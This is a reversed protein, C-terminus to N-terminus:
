LGEFFARKLREEDERMRAALEEVERLRDARRKAEAEEPTLPNTRAPLRRHLRNGEIAAYSLADVIDDHPANPFDALEEVAAEVWGKEKPFFVQRNEVRVQLMVSRSVKDGEPKVGRVPMGQARAETIILRQFAVDEVYIITPKYTEHIARITPIIKPGAMRERHIHVVYLSGDPHVDVVALVTYDGKTSIALDVTCIRYGGEPLDDYYRLNEPNFLLDEPPAPNQNYQAEFTRRGVTNKLFAVEAAPIREPCLLEGRQREDNWRTSVFKSKGAELPLILKTWNGEQDNKLIHGSVDEVHGRQMVLVRCGTKQDNLRTTWVSTFWRIVSDRSAKSEIEQLNHPDDAVIISGGEGTGGGGDISSILREGTRDNAFRTKTNQDSTLSFAHGYYSRYLDSEVVGRSRVSDRTALDKSYSTYVFRESPFSAWLWAFWLVGIITSKGIRPPCNILLNRIEKLHTLHDCIADVHFGDQFPVVPEVVPWFEKIFRKLDRRAAEGKIRTIDTPHFTM